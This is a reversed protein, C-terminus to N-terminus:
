AITIEAYAFDVRGERPLSTVGEEIQVRVQAPSEGDLPSEEGRRLILGLQGDM